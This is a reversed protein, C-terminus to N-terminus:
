PHMFPIGAAVGILNVSSSRASSKLKARDVLVSYRIRWRARITSSAASAHGAARDAAINTAGGSRGRLPPPAIRAVVQGPQVLGAVAAGFGFVPHLGVLANQRYEVSRHRGSVAAPATRQDCGFQAVDIHLIDPAEQTCLLDVKRGALGPALAVVRGECGLRRLTDPKIKFRGV